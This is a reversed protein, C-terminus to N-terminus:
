VPYADKGGEGGDEEEEDEDSELLLEGQFWDLGHISEAAGGGSTGGGGGHSARRGSRRSSSRTARERPPNPLAPMPDAAREEEQQVPLPEMTGSGGPQEPQSIAEFRDSAASPRALRKSVKRSSFGSHQSPEVVLSGSSDSDKSDGTAVATSALPQPLPASFSRIPPHSPLPFASQSQEYYRQRQQEYFGRGQSPAHPSGPYPASPRSAHDWVTPRAQSVKPTPPANARVRTPDFDVTFTPTQTASTKKTSTAKSASTSASTSAASSSESPPSAKGSRDEPPLSRTRKRKGQAATTVYAPPHWMHAETGTAVPTTGAAVSFSFSYAPGFASSTGQSKTPPQQTSPTSPEESPPTRTPPPRPPPGPPMYAATYASSAVFQGPHPPHYGPPFPHPPHHQHMGPYPHQPHPPPGYPHWPPPMHYASPHGFSSSGSATVVGPIGGPRRSDDDMAMPHMGPMPGQRFVGAAARGDPYHM